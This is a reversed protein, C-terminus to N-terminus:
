QNWSHVTLPINRRYGLIFQKILKIYNEDNLTALKMM